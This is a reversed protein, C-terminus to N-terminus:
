WGYDERMQEYDFVEPMEPEPEADIFVVEVAEEPEIPIPQKAKKVEAQELKQREKKTKKVTSFTERERVEALISRNSVAKGTERVKRSTAKVEYYSLEETELDQAYARALFVEKDGETRYVLIKTIDRPDYRLVVSEGAYGALYEGRYMLNEFQLYGGRQIQRRTQKMLCIDLDRESLLDPAAILGSEWRQFRTQDGMRADLRQNYNDVIYRVLNQELQRLTYSAEKEAEEPREQVNSGTYGPLTSFLETNFTKFPREVSGGESPRDRLHCVFGLQVGIQQLHNSRFDKGGDTYFHQPLGSTGWQEHLGYESGYQKPLIAHRLALAVVQSSPADYGLNIGMICRSYSDIVTTLWPRGLIKGHQDVLLIDAPTHDCQWVQNSHEVQLDKGDRTKVSLRSGHWGPSRISKAQEIKDILPQLIRYVTMHSPPKVGLEDARAKARIFVSLRTMRKGGKNGEKYTKLVFEQWNEDVRHKGKDARQNQVLGALGEQEWRDVLRRITRVSKGLTEAAEQLRQTYTTRNGCPDSQSDSNKLLSQIVEMKLLADDSLESVIVNAEVLNNTGASSASTTSEANQM